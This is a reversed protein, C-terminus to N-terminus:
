DDQPKLNPGLFILETPFKDNSILGFAQLNIWSSKYIIQVSKSTYLEAATPHIPM